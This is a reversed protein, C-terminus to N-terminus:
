SKSNAELINLSTFMLFLFFMSVTLIPLWLIIRFPEIEYFANILNAPFFKWPLHILSFYLAFLVMGISIISWRKEPIANLCIYYFNGICIIAYTSVMIMKEEIPSLDFFHKGVELACFGSGLLAVLSVSIFKFLREFFTGLEIENKNFLTIFYVPIAVGLVSVLGSRRPTLPFITGFLLTMIELCLVLLNKTLYLQSISLVTSMIVKGEKFISPLISFKNNLLVIDAIEKTISSGSEMAIGLTAEKVAPVDNVGDGIMVTRESHNLQRIIRKKQEPSLRAFVVKEKVVKKFEDEDIKDLENGTIVKDNEVVWNAEKLTGLISGAHDGSLLKLQIKNQAFLELAEKTDHRLANHLTIIALPIFEIQNSKFVEEFEMTEPLLVAIISRSNQSPSNKLAEEIRERVTLTSKGAIMETAGLILKFPKGLAEFSIGSYKRVSNFPIEDFKRSQHFSLKKLAELTPNSESFLSAGTGIVKEVEEDSYEKSINFLSEISLENETLTGTKDFCVTTVTSFSEIANLKQVVAGLKMIQYVGKAFVVTAFFVLGEPLLTIVVTAVRRIFEIDNLSGYYNRIILEFLTLLVALAFSWVFIADIKMQLPTRQFKYEKALSSIKNAYSEDGISAAEYFGTGSVAFSGSFISAGIEKEVVHNEGSLLSEDMELRSSQILPGDVVAFEGRQIKLVDGQVIESHEIEYAKGERIVTVKREVLIRARELIRRTRLEQVIAIITNAFVVILIGISDLVLRFDNTAFYVSTLVGIIILNIINFINLANELIIETTPKLHQAKSHNTKGEKTRKKVEELSIGVPYNM